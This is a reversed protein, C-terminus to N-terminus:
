SFTPKLLSVCIHRNLPLGPLVAPLLWDQRDIGALTANVSLRHLITGPM